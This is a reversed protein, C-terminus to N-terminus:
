QKAKIRALEDSLERVRQSTKQLIRYALSPDEHVRRLFNKKDITLIRAEGVVRVTALRPQREVIAMEGIIEGAGRTALIIEKGDQERIVQVAGSQIVYMCDGLEGQRFIVDGDHYLKGLEGSAM